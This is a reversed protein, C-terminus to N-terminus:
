ACQQQEEGRVLADLEERSFLLRRALRYTKLKGQERLYDITRLSCRLYDAAEDRTFYQQQVSHSKNIM